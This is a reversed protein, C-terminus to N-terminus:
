LYGGGERGGLILRTFLRRQLHDRASSVESMAVCLLLTHETYHNSTTCLVQKLTLVSLTHQVPHSGYVPVHVPATKRLTTDDGGEM